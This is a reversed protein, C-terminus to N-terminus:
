SRVVINITQCIHCLNFMFTSSVTHFNNFFVLFLINSYVTNIKLVTDLIILFRFWNHYTLCISKSKSTCRVFLSVDWQSNINNRRSLKLLLTSPSVPKRKGEFQCYDHLHREFGLVVLKFLADPSRARRKTPCGWPKHPCGPFFFSPFNLNCILNKHFFFFLKSMSVHGTGTQLCSLSPGQHHPWTSQCTEVVLILLPLVSLWTSWTYWMTTPTTLADLQRTSRGWWMSQVSPEVPCFPM